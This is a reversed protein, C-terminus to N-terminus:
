LIMQEIKILDPLDLETGHVPFSPFTWVDILRGVSLHRAKITRSDMPLVSPLSMKVTTAICTGAHLAIYGGSSVHVSQFDFASYKPSVSVSSSSSSPRPLVLVIVVLNQWPWVPRLNHSIGAMNTQAETKNIHHLKLSSSLLSRLTLSHCHVIVLWLYQWVLVKTLNGINQYFWASRQKGPSLSVIIDTRTKLAKDVGFNGLLSTFADM